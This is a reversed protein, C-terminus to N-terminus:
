FNWFGAPKPVGILRTEPIVKFTESENTNNILDSYDFFEAPIRYFSYISRLYAVLQPFQERNRLPLEFTDGKMDSLIQQQVEEVSPLEPQNDDIWETPIQWFRFFKRAKKNNFAINARFCPYETGAVKNVEEYDNIPLPRRNDLSYDIWERPLPLIFKYEPRLLAILERAETTNSVPFVFKEKVENVSMPSKPLQRKYFFWQSPIRRFYYRDRLMRVVDRLSNYDQRRDENWPFYRRLESPLDKFDKPLKECVIVPREQINFYSAPLRGSLKYYKALADRYRKIDQYQEETTLPFFVEKGETDLIQRQIMKCNLPLDIKHIVYNGNLEGDFNFYGQLIRKMKGAEQPIATPLNDPLKIRIEHSLGNPHTPLGQLDARLKDKCFITIQEFDVQDKTPRPRNVFILRFIKIFTRAIAEGRLSKFDVSLLFKTAIYNRNKEMIEYIKRRPIEMNPDYKEKYAKIQSDISQTWMKELEEESKLLETDYTNMLEQKVGTLIFNHLLVHIKDAITERNYLTKILNIVRETTAFHAKINDEDFEGPPLKSVIFPRNRPNYKSDKILGDDIERYTEQLNDKVAEVNILSPTTEAGNSNDHRNSDSDKGKSSLPLKIRKNTDHTDTLETEIEELIRSKNTTVEPKRTIVVTVSPPVADNTNSNIQVDTMHGSQQDIEPALQIEKEKGLKKNRLDKFVEFVAKTKSPSWLPIPNTGESDLDEFERQKMLTPLYQKRTNCLEEYEKLRQEKPIKAFTIYSVEHTSSSTSLEKEVFSFKYFEEEFETLIATWNNYMGTTGDHVIWSKPYNSAYPLRTSNTAALIFKFVTENRDKLYVAFQKPVVQSETCSRKKSGYKSNNRVFLKIGLFTAM